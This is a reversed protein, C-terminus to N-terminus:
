LMSSGLKIAEKDGYFDFAMWVELRGDRRQIWEGGV